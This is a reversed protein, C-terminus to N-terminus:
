ALLDDGLEDEEDALGDALQALAARAAEQLLEVAPVQAAAAERPRELLLQDDEVRRLLDLSPQEGRGGTRNRQDLAELGLDGRAVLQGELKGDRDVAAPLSTPSGMTGGRAGEKGSGVRLAGRAERGAFGAEPRLPRADPRRQPCARSRGAPPPQLPASASSSRGRSTASSAFSPGARACCPGRRGPS